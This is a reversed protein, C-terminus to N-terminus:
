TWMYGRHKVIASLHKALEETIKQGEDSWGPNGFDDFPKLFEYASKLDDYVKRNQIDRIHRQERPMDTLEDYPHEFQYRLSKEGDEDEWFHILAKALTMEIFYDKDHWTNPCIDLFWQNPHKAESM